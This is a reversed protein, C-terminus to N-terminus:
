KKEGDIKDLLREIAKLDQPSTKKESLAQLVMARTSGGFVRDLLQVPPFDGREGRGPDSGFLCRAAPVVPWFLPSRDLFDPDFPAARLLRLV